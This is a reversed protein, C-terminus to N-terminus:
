EPKYFQRGFWHWRGSAGPLTCNVRTRGKPFAQDVRIEIRREGLRELRAKGAHSSFCTLRGLTKTEGLATFGIAPPNATTILPDAPTIDTVSLALANAALRFRDLGAYKENMAFRPLDFFNSLGNFAGSHQGFGALFGSDKAMAQITLSSEGYPYAFLRPPKGLMEEFRKKSRALEDLNRARDAKPMHLHSGTHAGITVGSAALEKIQAWNMFNPTHSDIPDTAVFVTFPFGAEKLRPWAETYISLYADDITLGVTRNPLPKGAQLADIIEPLPLVAYQGTKLERIHAEFQELSVNTSPYKAEGFRHYMIVVAGNSDAAAAAPVAMSFIAILGLFSNRIFKGLAM